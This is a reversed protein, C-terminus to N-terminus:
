EAKMYPESDWKRVIACDLFDFADMGYYGSQISRSIVDVAGYKKMLQADTEKGCKVEKEVLSRSTKDYVLVIATGSGKVTRCILGRGQSKSELHTANSIFVNEDIALDAYFPKRDVNINTVTKGYYKCLKFAILKNEFEAPITCHITEYIPTRGYNGVKVDFSVTNLAMKMTFM